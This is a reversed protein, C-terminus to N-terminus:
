RTAPCRRLGGHVDLAAGAGTGPKFRSPAWDCTKNDAKAGVPWNCYNFHACDGCKKGEPLRMSDDGGKVAKTEVSEVAMSVESQKLPAFVWFRIM